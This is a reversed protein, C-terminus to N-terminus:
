SLKWAGKHTTTNSCTPRLRVVVEAMLQESSLHARAFRKSTWLRSGQLFIFGSGSQAVTFFCLKSFSLEGCTKMVPGRHFPWINLLNMIVDWGGGSFFRQNQYSTVAKVAEQTKNTYYYRLSSSLSCYYKVTTVGLIASMYVTINDLLVPQTLSDASCLHIIWWVSM